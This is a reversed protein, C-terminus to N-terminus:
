VPSLYIWHLFSLDNNNYSISNCERKWQTQLDTCSKLLASYCELQNHVHSIWMHSSHIITHLPVERCELFIINLGRQMSLWDVLKLVSWCWITLEHSTMQQRGQSIIPTKHSPTKLGECSCSHEQHIDLQSCANYGELYNMYSHVNWHQM